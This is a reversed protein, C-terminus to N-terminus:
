RFVGSRIEYEEGGPPTGKGSPEVYLSLGQCKDLLIGPSFFPLAQCSVTQRSCSLPAPFPGASPPLSDSLAPKEGVPFSRYLSAWLRFHHRIRSFMPRKPVRGRHDQSPVPRLPQLHKQHPPVPLLGEHTPGEDKGTPGEIGSVAVGIEKGPDVADRRVLRYSGKLFRLKGWGPGQPEVHRRDPLGEFLRPNEQGPVSPTSRRGARVSLGLGTEGRGPLSEVVPLRGEPIEGGPFM